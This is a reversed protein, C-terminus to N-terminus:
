VPAVPLRRDIVPALRHRRKGGRPHLLRRVYAALEAVGTANLANRGLLRGRRYERRWLGRATSEAM